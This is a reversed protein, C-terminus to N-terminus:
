PYQRHYCAKIRVSFCPVSCTVVPFQVLLSFPSCVVVFIDIEVLKVTCHICAPVSSTSIIQLSDELEDYGNLNCFVSHRFGMM